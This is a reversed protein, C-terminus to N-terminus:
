KRLYTKVYDNIVLFYNLKFHIEYFLVNSTTAKLLVTIAHM